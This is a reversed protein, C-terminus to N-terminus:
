NRQGNPRLCNEYDIKAQDLKGLVLCHVGAAFHPYYHEPVRQIARRWFLEASTEGKRARSPIRAM